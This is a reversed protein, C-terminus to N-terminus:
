AWISTANNQPLVDSKYGLYEFIAGKQSETLSMRNIYMLVKAKKSGSISKGNEDLDAKISGVYALILGMKDVGLSLALSQRKGVFDVGSITTKALDYYYDYIYNIAKSKASDELSYWLPLKMLSLLDSESKNYISKFNNYQTKSLELPEGDVNIQKPVSTPLVDYGKSYLDNLVGLLEKNNVEVNKENVMLGFIKNALGDDEDKIAQSYDKVYKQKYFLNDYEYVVGKDFWKIIGKTYSEFNRVPIGFTAGMNVIFDHLGRSITRENTNGDEIMTVIGKVSNFVNVLSTEYSNTVDYGQILQSLDSVLPISGLITDFFITNLIDEGLPEDDRGKFLRKMLLSIAVLYTNTITLAIIRRSLNAKSQKYNQEFKTKLTEYDEGKYTELRKIAYKANLVQKVGFILQSIQQVPEGKFMTAFRVFTNRNRMLESRFIPDYNQQTEMVAKQTLLAAQKLLEDGNYSKSLQDISAMFIAKVVYNDLHQIPSTLASGIKGSLSGSGLLNGLEVTAGENARAWLLPSYKYLTADIDIHNNKSTQNKFAKALGVLINKYSIGVGHAALSSALQKALVSPNLGLASVANFNMVKSAIEDLVSIKTTNLNVMDRELNNIYSVFSGDIKGILTKLMVGDSNKANLVRKVNDFAPSYGYYMSMQDTYSSVIDLVNEVIINNKAHPHLEKNFGPNYQMAFSHVDSTFYDTSIALGNKDVKIPFYNNELDHSFGYLSDDTSKKAKAAMDFFEQVLKIYQKQEENFTDYLKDLFLNNVNIEVSGNRARETHGKRAQIENTVLIKGNNENINFLHSRTATRLYTLYLSIAQGKSLSTSKDVEYWTKMERKNQKIFDEFIDKAEKVFEWRKNNGEVLSEFLQSFVQGKAKFIEFPAGIQNFVRDIFNVEGLHRSPKVFDLEQSAQNAVIQAEVKMNNVRVMKYDFVAKIFHRAVNNLTLLEENTLNGSNNALSQIQEYLVSQNDDNLINILAVGDVKELLVRAFDRVNEQPKINGAFTTINKIKNLLTVVEKDLPSTANVYNKLELAKNVRANLKRLLKERVIVHNLTTKLDVIKNQMNILSTEIKHIFNKGYSTELGNVFDLLLAEKKKAFEAGKITSDNTLISIKKILNKVPIAFQNPMGNLSAFFDAAFGKRIEESFNKNTFIKVIQNVIDIAENFTVGKTPKLYSSLKLARIVKNVDDFNNKIDEDSFNYDDNLTGDLNIVELPYQITDKHTLLSIAKEQDSLQDSSNPADRFGDSITPEGNSVDQRIDRGARSQGNELVGDVGGHGEIKSNPTTNWNPSDKEVIIAREGLKVNNNLKRFENVKRRKEELASEETYIESFAESPKDGYENILKPDILRGNEIFRGIARNVSVENPVENLILEIYYGNEKLVNIWKKYLKNKESGVVPIVMNTGDKVLENFVNEVIKQSTNHVANSGIGNNFEPFFKKVIDSDVVFAKEKTSLEDVVSTSKGSGPLGTVIFVRKEKNPTNTGTTDEGYGYKKFREVYENIRAQYETLNANSWNIFDSTYKKAKEKADKYEQLELIEQITVAEPTFLLKKYFDFLNEYAFGYGLQKVDNLTINEGGEFLVQSIDKKKTPNKLNAPIPITENTKGGTKGVDDIIDSKIAVDSSKDRLSNQYNIIDNQVKIIVNNFENFPFNDKIFQDDGQVISSFNEIFSKIRELDRGYLAAIDQYSLGRLYKAIIYQQVSAPSNSFNIKLKTIKHRKQERDALEEPTLEEDIFNDNLSYKENVINKYNEKNSQLESSMDDLNTKYESILALADLSNNGVSSKIIAAIQSKDFSLLTNNGYANLISKIVSLFGKFHTNTKDITEHITKLELTHTNSIQEGSTYDVIKKNNKNVNFAYSIYNGKVNQANSIILTSNKASPTNIIALPKEINKITNKILNKSIGSERITQLVNPSAIIPFNMYGMDTLIKPTEMSITAFLKKPFQQGSLINDVQNDFSSSLTDTIDNENESISLKIQEEANLQESEELKSNDLVMKVMKITALENVIKNDEFVKNIENVMEFIENDWDLSRKKEIELNHYKDIILQFQVAKSPNKLISIASEFLLTSANSNTIINNNKIQNVIGELFLTLKAVGWDNLYIGASFTNESDRKMKLSKAYKKELSKGAKPNEVFFLKEGGYQRIIQSFDNDLFGSDGVNIFSIIEGIESGKTLITFGSLGDESLISVESNSLQYNIRSENFKRGIDTNKFPYLSLNQSYNINQMYYLNTFIEAFFSPNNFVIINRNKLSYKQFLNESNRGWNTLYDMRQQIKGRLFRISSIQGNKKYFETLWQLSSEDGGTKELFLFEGNTSGSSKTKNHKTNPDDNEELDGVNDIIDSDKKNTSFKAQSDDIKSSELEKQLKELLDRAFSLNEKIEKLDNELEQRYENSLMNSKLKDQTEKLEAELRVIEDNIIDISDNIDKGSIEQKINSVEEKSNLANNLADAISKLEKYESSTKSGKFKAILSNFFNAIKGLLGRKKNKLMSLFSKNKVLSGITDAVIEQNIYAKTAVEDLNLKNLQEKYITEYKNYDINGEADLHVGLVNSESKVSSSNEKNQLFSLVQTELQRYNISSESSHTLEHGIIFDMQSSNNSRSNLYITDNSAVYKGNFGESHEGFDIIAVKLNSNILQASKLAQKQEKTPNTIIGNIEQGALNYTRADTIVIDSSTFNINGNTFYAGARGLSKIFADKKTPDIKNVVQQAKNLAEQIHTKYYNEDSASFKLSNRKKEYEGILEFAEGLNTQVNVKNHQIVEGLGLIGGSLAGMGGEKLVDLYFQGTAYEKLAESGKYTTKLIPNVVGSIVEELGENLM